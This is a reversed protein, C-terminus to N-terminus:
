HGASSPVSFPGEVWLRYPGGTDPENGDVVVLWEGAALHYEHKGSGCGVFGATDPELIALTPKWGDGGVRFHYTGEHEITLRWEDDRAPAYCGRSHDDTAFRTDGQVWTGLDLRGGHALPQDRTVRVSYTGRAGGFGDVIIRSESGQKLTVHLLSSSYSGHRDDNCALVQNTQDVVALAGDFEGEIAVAYSGSAPAVFRWAEDPSGSAEVCPPLFGDQADQTSGSRSASLTLVGRERTRGHRAPPPLPRVVSGWQSNGRPIALTAENGQRRVVVPGGFVSLVGRPVTRSGLVAPASAPCGPFHDQLKRSRPVRCLRAPGGNGFVVDLDVLGVHGDPITEFTPRPKLESYPVSPGALEPAEERPQILGRPVPALPGLRVHNEDLRTIQYADLPARGHVSHGRADHDSGFRGLDSRYSLPFSMGTGDPLSTPVVVVSGDRHHAVWLESGDELTTLAIYGRRPLALRQTGPPPPAIATPSREAATVGETEVRESSRPVRRPIRFAFAEDWDLPALVVRRELLRRPVAIVQAVLHASDVCNEYLTRGRVRLLGGPEAEVTTVENLCARGQHLAGFVVYHRFDIAPVDSTAGVKRWLHRLESPSTALFARSRWNYGGVADHWLVILGGPDSTTARAVTGASAPERPRTRSSGRRVGCSAAFCLIVAISLISSIGGRALIATASKM